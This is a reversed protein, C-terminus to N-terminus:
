LCSKWDAKRRGANQPLEWCHYDKHRGQNGKGKCHRCQRDSNGGNGDPAKGLSAIQARLKKIEASKERNAAVLAGNSTTLVGNNKVLEDLTTREVKAANALNDFCAELDGVSAAVEDSNPPNSRQEEAANAGENNGGFANTGGAAKVRVREKGQAAKYMTKWADWTKQQPSLNEWEDSTRAFRGDKLLAASAIVLVSADTIPNNENIRLAQRQADELMNIYEPIGEATHHYDRMAIQLSLADIAHTGLCAKQLHVIIERATVKTYFYKASKLERIWTDEVKSIIFKRCGKETVDYTISDSRKARWMAEARARVANHADAAISKDGKEPPYAAVRGPRVFIAGYDAKYDADSQILGVLSHKGNEADYPIDLLLPTLLEVLAHIQHDEPQGVIAPFTASADAFLSAIDEPSM